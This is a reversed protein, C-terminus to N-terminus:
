GFLIVEEKAKYDEHTKLPFFFSTLFDSGLLGLPSIKLFIIRNDYCSALIHLKYQGVKM